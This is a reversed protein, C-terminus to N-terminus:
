VNDKSADMDRNVKIKGAVGHHRRSLMTGDIKLIDGPEETSTHSRAACATAGEDRM